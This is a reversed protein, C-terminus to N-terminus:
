VAYANRLMVGGGKVAIVVGRAVKCFIIDPMQLHLVDADFVMRHLVEHRVMFESDSPDAGTIIDCVDECLREGAGVEVMEM